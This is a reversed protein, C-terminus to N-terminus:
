AQRCQDLSMPGSGFQTILLAGGILALNKMFMTLQLTAAETDAVAWFQHMMLTVPLLFLVLAWAGLRARYGLLISLGGALSLLGSAPVAIAALPVGHSAAMDIMRQSFHMPASAVFIASFLFRGALVVAANVAEDKTSAM